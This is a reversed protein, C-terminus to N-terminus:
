FKSMFSDDSQPNFHTYLQYILLIIYTEHDQYTSSVLLNKPM